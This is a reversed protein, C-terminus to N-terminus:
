RRARRYYTTPGSCLGKWTENFAAKPVDGEMVTTKKDGTSVFRKGSVSGCAATIRKGDRVTVHTRIDGLRTPLPSSTMREKVIDIVIGTLYRGFGEENPQAMQAAARSPAATGGIILAALMPIIICRRNM